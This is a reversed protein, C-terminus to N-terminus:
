SCGAPFGSLVKNKVPFSTMLIRIRCVSLMSYEFKPRHYMAWTFVVIKSVKTCHKITTDQPFSFFIVNTSHGLERFMPRTPQCNMKKTKPLVLIM